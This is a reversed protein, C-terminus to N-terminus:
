LERREFFDDAWAFKVGANKAAQKDEPRDGILIVDLKKVDFATMLSFIMGPNPKRYDSEISWVRVTGESHYPCFRFAETGILQAAHKMIKYAMGQTIIGFAVDGQNSAIAIKHDYAKLENIKEKVGPILEQDEPSNIFQKGSKSRCITGDKDFIYLSM